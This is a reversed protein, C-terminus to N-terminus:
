DEFKFGKETFVRLCAHVVNPDYLIGSNRSIEELAKEIGLPPRYPRHSSMAEVVDAVGLIRAEILLKDELIGSPYGSGNMREHHQIVIDAIPWPFEVNKLIDYGVQSHVKILQFEIDTLKGPKSLIEQPVSIKGIDHLLGAIRIAQIREFDFGMEQAIACGLQAVRRQHGATYRDRSEVTLAIAQITGDVTKELKRLSQELRKTAERRETIDRSVGLYGTMRGNSDRLYTIANEAWVTSGDKRYLEVEMTVTRNLDYQGTHEKVDEEAMIRMAAELSAPTMMEEMPIAKAEEVTCGRLHTVSPSVYSYKLNTDMTWIVDSLNEALLRYRAESNKLAEDAQKRETIDHLVGIIEVPQGDSSNIFISRVEAWVLSGDKRKVELEQPPLETATNPGGKEALAKALDAPVAELSAPTLGQELGGAMAEEVSYGLLSTVSPSVYTPRLNMDTVWIVDAASGALLRSRRESEQLSEEAKKRGTIDRYNVVIGEVAPDHLLNTATGELTRWTGDKHQIRIETQMTAGPNQLLRAFKDAIPQTTEQQIYELISAGIAEEPKFGLVPEVSPSIYRAIGEASVIMIVDSSHEILARFRQERRQLTEEAKKRETVDRLIGIIEVPQGDPGRLLTGASEAWIKSGDKHEIEVAVPTLPTATNPEGKKALERMVIESVAEISAPDLSKGMGRAMNEEVSYGTMKIISSSLYTLRLNMDLVWIVDAGNEALFRYRKESEALAQETKRRDTIDQVGAIAGAYDGKDDIIPSTELIAYILMGDKRLFEFDHQEKIGQQRRELNYKAIEVGREDMFAFLHKGIMEEITYGLMEAMRPNVFTTNSDKDIAWIGENITEVLQRYKKESQELEQQPKRRETIDNYVAVIEGGPLKYVWSERWTGPDREDRYIAEPFYEPKGTRWVRQFVGFVGFGKVGPFAETVRKGLVDEKSLKEIKEAAPNFDKFVFDEGNDVAEYVAGGSTMHEFLGKFKAESVKLAEEVKKRETIDHLVGMIEVPQGDSGRIFSFSISGWITAGDKQKIEMELPQSAIADQEEPKESALARAVNEAALKASAPSLSKEISGALSEEITLGVLRTVSPSVYTPKFNMDTVWIVDAVNETILRYKKESQELEQQAKKRETIDNMLLWVAPKEEWTFSVAKLGFWIVNGEKGISRVISGQPIEEGRLSKLYLEAVTPQDDPHIFETFPSAIMEKDSYGTIETVKSNAFKLVGEQVVVIAKGANEVLLRTEEKSAEIKREKLKQATIDRVSILGALRGQYEIRVGLASLWIERGDRTMARLETVLRLNNRFMDEGIMRVVRDKDETPIYDLPNLGVMEEPSAFGFISAMAQNATVVMGTEADIVEMGDLSGEFIARYQLETDQVATEKQIITDM